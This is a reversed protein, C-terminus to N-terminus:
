GRSSDRPTLFKINLLRRLPSVTSSYPADADNAATLSAALIEIRTMTFKGTVIM